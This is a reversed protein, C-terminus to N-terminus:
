QLPAWAILGKIKVLQERNLTISGDENQQAGYVVLDGDAWLAANFAPESDDEPEPLSWVLGKGEREAVIDGGNRAANMIQAFSPGAYGIAAALDESSMRTGAELSQLHAIAKAALGDKRIAM